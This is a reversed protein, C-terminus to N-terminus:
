SLKWLREVEESSVALPHAKDTIQCDAFYAGHNESDENTEGVGLKPDLAAVLGTAAGAGLTKYAFIGSSNMAKIAELTEPHFNRGLETKIVGPHVALTLIGYKEYLRENAAIGFLVNAVKSRNYGDLPVYAKEETDTYGWAKLREYNPQETEPLHKNPKDFNIDSWRMSAVIPSASSINVIRTAGRPSGEAAKIFKPMLLCTFLWHGIHNTAFHMEIGDKSLTREQLGMVGASNVLIDITPLDSWSLAEAAASRVSEQSSLDVELARYDVDPFEAKLADICEQIKSPTRGCIVLHAPSQSALAQSASFGLGNRNGGTVLVTKGRVRDAFARTVELAETAAGFEPHSTATM